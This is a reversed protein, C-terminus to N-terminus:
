PYSTGINRRRSMQATTWARNALLASRTTVLVQERRPAVDITELLGAPDGLKLGPAPLVLDEAHHKLPPQLRIPQDPDCFLRHRRESEWWSAARRYFRLLNEAVLDARKAFLARVVPWILRLLFM